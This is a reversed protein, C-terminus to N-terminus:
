QVSPHALVLDISTFKETGRGLLDPCRIEASSAPSTTRTDCALPTSSSVRRRTSSTRTTRSLGVVDGGSPIVGADRFSHGGWGPWRGSVKAVTTFVRRTQSEVM